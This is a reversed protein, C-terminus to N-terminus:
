PKGERWLTGDPDEMNSGGRCFSLLVNLFTSVAALLSLFDNFRRLVARTTTVGEPSQIGVVVWADCRNNPNAPLKHTGTHNLQKM